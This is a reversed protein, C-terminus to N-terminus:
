EVVTVKIYSNFYTKGDESYTAKVRTTGAKKGAISMWTKDERPTVYAISEDDSDVSLSRTAEGEFEVGNKSDYPVAGISEGVKLTIDYGILKKDRWEWWALRPETVTVNIDETHTEGESDKFSLTIVSTGPVYATFEIYSGMERIFYDTVYEDSVKTDFDGETFSFMKGEETNYPIVDFKEEPAITVSSSLLDNKKLSSSNTWMIQWALPFAPVAKNVTVKCQASLGNDTEVKITAVGEAIATVVGDKVIAVDEDDSSWKLECEAGTPEITVKLKSTGGVELTLEEKSLSVATVEDEDGNEEKEQEKKVEKDEDDDDGCSVFGTTTAAAIMALFAWFYMKKM